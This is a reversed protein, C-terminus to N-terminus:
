YRYLTRSKRPANANAALADLRAQWSLVAAVALDIKNPSSPHAKAIQIGSRSIRRRANLVHRTFAYSGDHTMGGDIVASHYQKLARVILTARGGTMWWQMPHDRSAKIKLKKGHRAEWTAFWSEWKAPDGFMGVVTWRDFAMDVAADVEIEPVQWDKGDPGQPQEWVGVEIQHGDEVRTGIIGTADTVADERKRSGDFGLTIVDGDAIIKTADHRAKWEPQSIWSDSAHTIQNLYYRRADQPDTDPDWYEAVKRDLDVWGGHVDASEGYAVALGSRLSGEDTPDTEPPAERHDVLLGKDLRTRGEQQAQFAQFTHEAVSGIGPEFANPTEVSAGGTKSLNRRITGALRIGGNTPTWSETNHTLHGGVGVAFLHDDSDVAICRVPVPAVVDISRITVWDAGNRHQQTRVAKRKLRFPQFSGRPTFDVRYRGGCTYREDPIWKAGSTVQGLSRLLEILADILQRNTNIFTCCGAQTCCGDSDMLGRVLDSRQAISGRLYPTPVHKDRYCPLAALAKAVEPRNAMSFGRMRSFTLNVQDDAASYGGESHAYRRPWTQVGDQRLAQQVDALDSGHVSLECKGRTGDGLWLGLLYPPVPLDVPMTDFPRSVPIRFRRGDQVMEGTTRVRPKAASSAVKTQWLHGESAVVSTHDDFVVRYCAHETSVPKAQTVAVPLGTSGFVLDGVQLTGMTSWGGPVPVLTDLALAQDMAAFVPRFGERSTASSTVAEILGRPVAIFTEMPTIAYNDLVPGRRAMDLVPEWTNDTQDESVAVIQVKPKFGMSCWPRGVPRGDADWGDFVVDGLAEGLCIAGVIPSKGWGKSRSLVARRILRGNRLTRGQIAPGEFHRDVEYLKLIFEAQEQTFTLPEGDAAGDPVILNEAYWDLMAWGLTPREGPYEPKFPM